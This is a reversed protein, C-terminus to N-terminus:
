LNYKHEMSEAPNEFASGAEDLEDESDSTDDQQPATSCTNSSLTKCAFNSIRMQLRRMTTWMAYNDHQQIDCEHGEVQLSDCTSIVATDKHSPGVSKTIRNIRSRIDALM